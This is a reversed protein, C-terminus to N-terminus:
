EKGKATNEKKPKLTEKAKPRPEPQVTAERKQKHRNILM